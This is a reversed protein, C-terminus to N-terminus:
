DDDDDQAVMYQALGQQLGLTVTCVLIQPNTDTERSTAMCWESIFAVISFLADANTEGMFLKNTWDHLKETIELCRAENAYDATQAWLQFADQIARQFAAPSETPESFM